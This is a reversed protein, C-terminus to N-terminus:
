FEPGREGQCEDRRLARGSFKAKGKERRDLNYAATRARGAKGVLERKM